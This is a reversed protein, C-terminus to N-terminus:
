RHQSDRGLFNLLRTQPDADAASSVKAGFAHPIRIQGDEPTLMSTAVAVGEADLRDDQATARAFDWTHILTDTCAMRRIFTDFPYFDFEPGLRFAALVPDLLAQRVGDSATRWAAQVDDDATPAAYASGDLGALARRHNRVVHAAVEWASWGPCPSPASWREAPCSALLDGFRAAIRQYLDLTSSEQM